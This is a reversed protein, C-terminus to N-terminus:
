ICDADRRVMVKGEVIVRVFWADQVREPTDPSILEDGEAHVTSLLTSEMVSGKPLLPTNLLPSLAKVNVNLVPPVSGVETSSGPTNM